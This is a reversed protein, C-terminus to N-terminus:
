TKKKLKVVKVTMFVAYALIMVSALCGVILSIEQYWEISSFYATLMSVTLTFVSYMMNVHKVRLLSLMAENERKKSTLTSYITTFATIVSYAALVYFVLERHTFGGKHHYVLVTIGLVALSIVYFFISLLRYVNMRHEKIRYYRTILYIKAMGVLIYVVSIALFFTTREVYTLSYEYLGFLIDYAASCSYNVIYRVDSNEFYQRILSGHHKLHKLYRVAIRIYGYAIYLAFIEIAAAITVFLWFLKKDYLFNSAFSLGATAAIFILLAYLLMDKTPKLLKRM